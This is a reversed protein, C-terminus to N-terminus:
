RSKTEITFAMHYINVNSQPKDRVVSMVEEFHIGECFNDKNLDDLM